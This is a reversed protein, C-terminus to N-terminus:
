SNIDVGSVAVLVRFSKAALQTPIQSTAALIWLETNRADVALEGIKAMVQSSPVSGTYLKSEFSIGPTDYVTQGDIGFQSGASSLRFPVGVIAGLVSALLGEFGTPGTAPLCTLVEKFRSLHSSIEATENM